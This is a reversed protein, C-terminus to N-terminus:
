QGGFLIMITCPVRGGIYKDKKMIAKSEWFSCITFLSRM